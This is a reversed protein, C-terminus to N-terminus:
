EAPSKFGFPMNMEPNGQAIANAYYDILVLADFQTERPLQVFDALLSQERAVRELGLLDARLDYTDDKVRVHHAIERLRELAAPLDRRNIHHLVAQVLATDVSDNLYDLDTPSAMQSFPLHWAAEYRYDLLDATLVQYGHRALKKALYRSGCGYDLVRSGVILGSLQQLDTEPKSVTKYGHYIVNFWLGPDAKHFAETILQYTL